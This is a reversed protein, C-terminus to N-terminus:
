RVPISTGSEALGALYWCGLYGGIITIDAVVAIPTLAIRYIKGRGDNYTPLDYANKGGGSCLAFSQRNTSLVAYLIHPFNTGTEPQTQFVPVPPLQRALRTSVFHPKQGRVVRKKNENLFYARPRISDNRESYEDYVVLFDTQGGAGYLHVDANQVPENWADLDAKNWLADTACGGALFSLLLAVILPQRHM